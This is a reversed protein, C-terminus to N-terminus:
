KKKALLETAIEDIKQNLKRIYDYVSGITEDAVQKIKKAQEEFPGFKALYDLPLEAIKKHIQELNTAGDDIFQKIKNKLETLDAM